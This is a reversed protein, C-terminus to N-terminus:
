FRVRLAAWARIPAGPAYFTSHVLPFEGSVPPFPRSVFTGAATFANSGLLAATTYRGDFLNNVQGTLTLWPTLAYRAGLNVVAYPETAGPGLYYVGDAEHEGNENGRAEVGALAMLDVDIGLARTVQLDAFLKLMHRPILPMRDGPEIDIVGELGPAAADSASNSGGNMQEASQFTASLLTYGVGIDARGVRTKAGLELGERRTRGFNRFYGFGTQESQVFLIDDHNAARFYSANWAVGHHRGRVGAELTRTVVQSLPPDGAMANPLKCPQDPDACGLEISTAARSGENYGAYLNMGKSANLTAGVAPNFRSFVHSGDLSGEGGGPRISDHNDVTTRNFRGAMTVHLRDAFSVTDSAYVSWTTTVGDLDVRTDYPEGNVTGGTVGGDGFANVGTISRDPNLYGLQSSQTFAARSRDFAAGATLQNRRGATSDFRTLQGSAGANHQATHTRNLLGNCKEAPEANLAVELLCRQSPFPTNAAIEGPLYLNQDLSSENVDGNFTRTDIDRYYANGSFVITGTGSHRFAGNVFTARNDTEDPKTYVSAADQDLLRTEQLANGNLANRAHAVTVSLSGRPRNWGLKGFIQRVDSPSDDRWGDEAFLTGAVYWNLAGQRSGGHEFDFARRVDSGYSAQFATGPNSLGSKTTVALAGGLTNLGFLPNSGPMLATSAIAMRPILDWSVVDGFPQNLRVGDMYVSLGQPTGLLPSATYGRYNVDPQFPNGQMENVHVGQLRRNAFDSLDLAGSKDLDAATSTQVPAPVRDVPQEVGPLPTTGVVLVHIDLPQILPQQAPPPAPPQDQASVAPTLVFVAVLITLAGALRM